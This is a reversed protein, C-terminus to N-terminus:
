RRFPWRFNERYSVLPCYVSPVVPQVLVPNVAVDEYYGPIWTQVERTEYRAPIRVAVHYGPKVLVSYPRGRYDERMEVVPPIWRRELHEPEVLVTEVRTEYHGPVLRREVVTEPWVRRRKGWNLNIDIFGSAEARSPTFVAIITVISVIAGFHNWANATTRNCM